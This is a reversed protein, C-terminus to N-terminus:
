TAAFEHLVALSVCVHQDQTEEPTTHLDTNSTTPNSGVLAGGGEGQMTEAQVSDHVIQQAEVHPTEKCAVATRADNWVTCHSVKKGDVVKAQLTVTKDASGNKHHCNSM